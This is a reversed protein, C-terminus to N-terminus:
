RPKRDALDNEQCSGKSLVSSLLWQSLGQSYRIMRNRKGGVPAVRSGGSSARMRLISPKWEGGARRDGLVSFQPRLSERHELTEAQFMGKEGGLGGPKCAELSPSSEVQGPGQCLLSRKTGSSAPFCVSLPFGALFIKHVM